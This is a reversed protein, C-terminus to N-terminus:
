KHRTCPVVYDAEHWWWHDRQSSGIEVISLTPQIWGQKVYACFDPKSELKSHTACREVNIHVGYKNTHLTVLGLSIPFM